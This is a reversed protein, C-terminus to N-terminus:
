QLTNTTPANTALVEELMNLLKETAAEVRKRYDIIVGAMDELDREGVQASALAARAMLMTNEMQKDSDLEKASLAQTLALTEFTGLQMLNALSYKTEMKKEGTLDSTHIFGAQQQGKNSGYMPKGELLNAAQKRLRQMAKMKRMFEEQELNM